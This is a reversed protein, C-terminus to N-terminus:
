LWRGLVAGLTESRLLYAATAVGAAAGAVPCTNQNELAKSYEKGKLHFLSIVSVLSAIVFAILAWFAAGYLRPDVTSGPRPRNDMLM